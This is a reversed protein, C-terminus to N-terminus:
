RAVRALAARRARWHRSGIAPAEREATGCRGAPPHTPNTAPQGPAGLAALIAALDLHADLGTLRGQHVTWVHVLHVDFPAGTARVQGRLHGIAVVTDGAEVVDSVDVRADVSLVLRELFRRVGYYGRYEGGWPLQDDQHIRMQPSLCDFMDALDYKRLAVYLSRVLEANTCLM